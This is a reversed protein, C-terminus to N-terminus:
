QGKAILIRFALYFMWSHRYGSLFENHCLLMFPRIPALFASFVAIEPFKLKSKKERIRCYGSDLAEPPPM